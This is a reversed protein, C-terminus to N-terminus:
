NLGLKFHQLPQLQRRFLNKPCPVLYPYIASRLEEIIQPLPYAFYQYEGRGFAHQQMVIRSRFLETASYLNALWECEQSTLISGTTAYGRKNLEQAIKEWPLATLM